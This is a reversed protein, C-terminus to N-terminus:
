WGPFPGTLHEALAPVGSVVVDAPLELKVAAWSGFQGSDRPVNAAVWERPISGVGVVELETSLRVAVLQWQRDRLMVEYEHRSLYVTLRGARTTSKVELHLRTTGATFVLDYGYGDSWTSVHDVRGDTASRLLEVLGAEGAAGVLERAATDVKGWSVVLQDFVEAADLGLAEGVEVIDSPLEDPSRVLEDADQVWPLTGGEFVASLVRSAPPLTAGLGDLLGLERMWTLASEYQTPTLDDYQPHTTLLARARAIGGSTELTEM